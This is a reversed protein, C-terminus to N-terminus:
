LLALKRSILHWWAVVDFCRRLSVVFDRCQNLSVWSSLDLPCICDRMRPHGCDRMQQSVSMLGVHRLSFFNLFNLIINKRWKKEHFNNIYTLTVLIRTSSSYKYLTNSQQFYEDTSMVLSLIYPSLTLINVLDALIPHPILVTSHSRHPNSHITTGM